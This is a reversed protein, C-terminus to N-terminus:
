CFSRLLLYKKQVQRKIGSSFFYNKKELKPSLLFFLGSTLIQGDKAPNVEFFLITFTRATWAIMYSQGKIAVDSHM